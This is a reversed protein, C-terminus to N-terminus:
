WISYPNGAINRPPQRAIRGCLSLRIASLGAKHYLFQCVYLEVHGVTISKLDVLLLDAAFVLGKERM